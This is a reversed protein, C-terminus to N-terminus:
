SRRTRMGNISKKEAVREDVSESAAAYFLALKVLLAIISLDIAIWKICSLKEALLTPFVL